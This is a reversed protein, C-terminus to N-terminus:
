PNVTAQNGLGERIIVAVTLIAAIQSLSENQGDGASTDLGAKVTEFTDMVHDITTHDAPM